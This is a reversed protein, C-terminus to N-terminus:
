QHRGGACAEYASIRDRRDMLYQLEDIGRILLERAFPELQTLFEIHEGEVEVRAGPLDIYFTADARRSVAACIRQHLEANVTLPLLGNQLCNNCFTTNFSLGILARIGWAGLAWAAAERSSGCGFNSGVLMISRQQMDPSNLVFAPDRERIRAFLSAALAQRGYVNVYQAPIIQDTDIDPDLLPIVKSRLTTFPEM